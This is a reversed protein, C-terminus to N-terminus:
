ESGIEEDHKGASGLKMQHAAPDGRIENGGNSM